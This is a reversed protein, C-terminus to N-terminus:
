LGGHCLLEGMDRREEVRTAARRDATARVSPAVAAVVIVPEATFAAPIQQEPCL